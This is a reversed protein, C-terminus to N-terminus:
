AGDAIKEKVHMFVLKAYAKIPFKWIVEKPQRINWMINKRKWTRSWDSNFGLLYSLRYFWRQRYLKMHEGKYEMEKCAWWWKDCICLIRHKSQLNQMTCVKSSNGWLPHQNRGWQWLLSMAKIQIEHKWRMWDKMNGQETMWVHVVTLATDQWTTALTLTTGDGDVIPAPSVAM